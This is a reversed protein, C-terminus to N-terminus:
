LYEFHIIQVIDSKKLHNSVNLSTLSKQPFGLKLLGGVSSKKTKTIKIRRKWDTGGYSCVTYTKNIKYKDIESDVRITVIKTKKLIAKKYQSPFFMKSM